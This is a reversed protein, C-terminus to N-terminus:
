KGSQTANTQEPSGHEITNTIEKISTTLGIPRIKNSEIQPDILFISDKLAVVTSKRQYAKSKKEM